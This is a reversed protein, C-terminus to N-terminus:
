RMVFILARQSRAGQEFWSVLTWTRKLARHVEEYLDLGDPRHPLRHLYHKWREVLWGALLEEPYSQGEHELSFPGDDDFAERVAANLDPFGGGKQWAPDTRAMLRVTDFWLSLALRERTPHVFLRRAQEVQPMAEFAMSLAFRRTVEHCNAVSFVRSFAEAELEEPLLPEARPGLSELFVLSASIEPCDLTDSSGIDVPELRPLLRETFPFVTRGRPPAPWALLEGDRAFATSWQNPSSQLTTVAVREDVFFSAVESLSM